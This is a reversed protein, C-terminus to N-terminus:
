EEPGEQERVLSILEQKSHVDLKEYIHRIHSRATNFSIVLEESVYKASRGIRLHAHARTAM